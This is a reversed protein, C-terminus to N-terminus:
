PQRRLCCMGTLAAHEADATTLMKMQRVHSLTVSPISLLATGQDRTICAMAQVQMASYRGMHPTLYKNCHQPSIGFISILLSPLMRWRQRSWNSCELTARGSHLPVTAPMCASRAQGLCTLDPLMKDLREHMAQHGRLLVSMYMM